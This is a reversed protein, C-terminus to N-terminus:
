MLLDSMALHGGGAMEVVVVSDITGDGDQDIQLLDYKTRELITVAASAFGTLAILDRGSEFDSIRDRTGTTAGSDGPSFIFTDAGAGGILFDNGAGGILTDEGDGGNLRDNGLGGELTDDGLGGALLDDGRGGSLVDDGASGSLTDHGAGGEVEDEGSGAYVRDDGADGALMDDGSAGLLKDAGAGGTLTDNGTGGNLWDNGTGGHLADADTGGHLEDNGAQGHLTDEGQGGAIWDNGDGGSIEDDGGHGIIFDRDTTGALIDVGESGQVTAHLIQARVDGNAYQLTEDWGVVVNGNALGVVESFFAGSPDAAFLFEEGVKNLQLDFLQGRLESVGDDSIGNTDVWVAMLRDGALGIVPEGMRYTGAINASVKVEGGVKAGDADFRQLWAGGNGTATGFHDNNDHWGALFGGDPLAVLSPHSQAGYVYANVSFPSGVPSGDASFIQARVGPSRNGWTDFPEAGVDYWPVVFGGGSLGVVDRTTAHPGPHVLFEGGVKEADANFVQASIYSNPQMLWTVVFGGDALPAVTPNVQFGDAPGNVDFPSGLRDGSPGFMQGVIDFSLPYPREPAWTVIFNGSSLVAISPDGIVGASDLPIEIGVARGSNDFIRAKLASANYASQHIWAAVYGGDPLAAM